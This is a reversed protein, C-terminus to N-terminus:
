RNPCDRQIPQPGLRPCCAFRPPPGPHVSSCVDDSTQDFREEPRRRRDPDAAPVARRPTIAVRRQLHVHPGRIGQTAQQPVRVLEPQGTGVYGAVEVEVARDEVQEVQAILDDLAVALRRQAEPRALPRRQHGIGPAEAHEAAAGRRRRLLGAQRAPAV